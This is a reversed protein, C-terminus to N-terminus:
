RAVRNRELGVSVLASQWAEAPRQSLKMEKNKVDVHSEGVLIELQASLGVIVAADIGALDGRLVLRTLLFNQGLEVLEHHRLHCDQNEEGVKVTGVNTHICERFRLGNCM